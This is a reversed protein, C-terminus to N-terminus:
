RSTADDVTDGPPADPGLDRAGISDDPHLTTRSIGPGHGARNARSEGLAKEFGAVAGKSREALTGLERCVVRFASGHTGAQAAIINGNLALLQLRRATDDVFQVLALLREDDRGSRPDHSQQGLATRLSGMFADVHLCAEIMGLPGHEDPRASAYLPRCAVLYRNDSDDITGRFAERRRLVTDVLVANAYGGLAPVEGSDLVGAAAIRKNGLYLSLGLSSARALMPLIQRDDNLLQNGARLESDDRQVPGLAHIMREALETIAAARDAIRRQIIQWVPELIQHTDGAHSVADSHVPFARPRVATRIDPTTDSSTGFPTGIADVVTDAM